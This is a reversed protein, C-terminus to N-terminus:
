RPLVAFAQPNGPRSPRSEGWHEAPARPRPTGPVLRSGSPGLSADSRCCAAQLGKSVSERTEDFDRPAEKRPM